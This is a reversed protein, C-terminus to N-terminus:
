ELTLYGALYHTYCADALASLMAENLHRTDLYRQDALRRLCDLVVEDAQMREGNLYFQQQWFLM